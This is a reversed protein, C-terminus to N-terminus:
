KNKKREAQLQQKTRDREKIHKVILRETIKTAFEKSIKAIVFVFLVWTFLEPELYFINDGIFFAGGPTGRTIILILFIILTLIMGYFSTKLNTWFYISFIFCLGIIARLAAESDSVDAGPPMRNDLLVALANSLVFSGIILALTFALILFVQFLLKWCLDFFNDM